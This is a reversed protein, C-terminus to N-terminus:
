TADGMLHREVCRDAADPDAPPDDLRRWVPLVFPTLTIALYLAGGILLAPRLGLSDVAVGGLLAGLPVGAWALAGAAGLVRGQLHAPIQEYAVAFSIPNVTAMAVGAGFAVALVPAITDTLALAFLRPSGGLLFCVAFTAHRPLRTALATYILNGAVAGLGFTGGLLGLM